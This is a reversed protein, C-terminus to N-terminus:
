LYGTSKDIHAFLSCKLCYCVVGADERRLLLESVGGCVWVYVYLCPFVAELNGM